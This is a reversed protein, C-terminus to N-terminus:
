EQDEADLDDYLESEERIEESVAAIARDLYPCEGDADALLDMDYNAHEILARIMQEASEQREAAPIVDNVTEWLAFLLRAEDNM